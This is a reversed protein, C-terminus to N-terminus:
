ENRKMEDKVIKQQRKVEPYKASSTLNRPMYHLRKRGRSAKGKM